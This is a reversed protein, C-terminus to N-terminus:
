RGQAVFAPWSNGHEPPENRKISGAQKTISATPLNKQWRTIGARGTLGSKVNIHREEVLDLQEGIVRRHHARARRGV